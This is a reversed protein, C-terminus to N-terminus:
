LFELKKLRFSADMISDAIKDEESKQKPKEGLNVGRTSANGGGASAEISGAADSQQVQRSRLEREIGVIAGRIGDQGAELIKPNKQMRQYLFSQDQRTEFDEIIQASVGGEAKIDALAQRIGQQYRNALEQTQKEQERKEYEAKVANVEKEIMKATKAESIRLFTPLVKEPDDEQMQRLLGHVAPSNYIDEEEPEPEPARLQAELAGLRGQLEGDKRANDQTLRSNEQRLRTVESEETQKEAALASEVLSPEPEKAVEEESTEEEAFMIAPEKVEETPAEEQTEPIEDLPATPRGSVGFEALDGPREPSLPDSM